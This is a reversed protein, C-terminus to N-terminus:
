YVARVWFAASEASGDRRNEKALTAGLTIREAYVLRLTAEGTWGDDFGGRGPIAFSDGAAFHASGDDAGDLLESTHYGRVEPSIRFDGFRFSTALAAGVECSLAQADCSEYSLAAGGESAEAYGEERLFAYDLGAFPRLVFGRWPADWGASASAGFAAGGHRTSFSEFAYPVVRTEDIRLSAASLSAAIWAGRNDTRADRLAYFAGGRSRLSAGMLTGAELSQTTSFAAGGFSWRGFGSFDYGAMTGHLRDRYSPLVGDAGRLGNSSIGQIWGGGWKAGRTDLVDAFRGRLLSLTRRTGSLAADRVLSNVAPFLDTVADAVEESYWARDIRELLDAFPGEAAPRAADMALTMPVYAGASAFESYSRRVLDLTFGDDGASVSGSYLAPPFLNSFAGSAGNSAIFRRKGSAVYGDLYLVLSANGEITARGGVRLVDNAGADVDLRMEFDGTSKFDGSVWLTQVDRGGAGPSLVVGDCELNSDFVGKGSIRGDMIVSKDGFITGDNIVNCHDAYIGTAVGNTAGAGVFAGEANVFRGSYEIFVGYSDGDSSIADIEGRNEVVHSQIATIGCAKKQGQAFILGNNVANGAFTLYAGTAWGDPGQTQAMITGDNQFFADYDYGYFAVGYASARGGDDNSSLAIIGGRNLFSGGQLCAGYATALNTGSSEARSLIIDTNGLAANAGGWLFTGYAFANEGAPAEAQAVYVGNNLLSANAGGWRYYGYAHTTGDESVSEATVTNGEANVDAFDEGTWDDYLLYSACTTARMSYYGIRGYGDDGWETSWSNRLLWSNTASDWGVLAVAHDMESEAPLVSTLTTQDNTFVEGKYDNSCFVSEDDLKVGADVAGALLMARKMTEVDYAPLYHWSAFKVRPDNMHDNGDAPATQTYPFDAESPVGFDVLAQLEDFYCASGYPGNLGEYYPDMSWVLFSESFDACNGDYLGHARNYAAEAEACAAFAYCSGIGGQNHVPGIYSHGDINRLDYSAPLIPKASIVAPLLPLVALPLFRDVLRMFEHHIGYKRGTLRFLGRRLIKVLNEFVGARMM